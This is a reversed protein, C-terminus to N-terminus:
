PRLSAREGQDASNQPEWSSLMLLEQITNGELHLCQLGSQRKGQLGM